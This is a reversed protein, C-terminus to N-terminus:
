PLDWGELQQKNSREKDWRETTVKIAYKDKQAFAEKLSIKIWTPMDYPQRVGETQPIM